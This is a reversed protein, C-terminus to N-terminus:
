IKFIQSKDNTTKPANQTRFARKPLMKPFNSFNLLHKMGQDNRHPIFENLYKSKLNPPFPWKLKNPCFHWFRTTQDFFALFPRFIASVGEFIKQRCILNSIVGSFFPGKKLWRHGINPRFHPFFCRKQRNQFLSIKWIEALIPRFVVNTSFFM